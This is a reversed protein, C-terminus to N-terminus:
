YWGDVFGDGDKDLNYPNETKDESDSESTSDQSDKEDAVPEKNETTTEQKDVSTDNPSKSEDEDVSEDEVSIIVDDVRTDESEEDKDQVNQETEITEKKSDSVKEKKRCGGVAFVLVFLLAVIIFRKKM